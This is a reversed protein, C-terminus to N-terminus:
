HEVMSTIRSSCKAIVTQETVKLGMAGELDQNYQLDDYFQYEKQNQGDTIGEPSGRAMLRCGEPM